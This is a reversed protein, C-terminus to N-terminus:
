SEHTTEGRRDELLEEVLSDPSNFTARLRKFVDESKELVLQGNELRILLKSGATLGLQQRFHAPIVVRGQDNVQVMSETM